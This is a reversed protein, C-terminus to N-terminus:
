GISLLYVTKMGLKEHLIRLCTAKGVRLHRCLVDCSSFAREALLVSITEGLDNMVLKRSRRHGFLDTRGQQSGRRWKKVTPLAFAEPGDVLELDTQINKAKLTQLTFFRIVVRQEM